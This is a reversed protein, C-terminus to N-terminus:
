AGTVGVIAGAYLDFTWDPPTGIVTVVDIRCPVNQLGRFQVYAAAGRVLRRRKNWDLSEQPTGFRVHRRSRIEVVCLVSGCWAVRDLEVGGYRENRGVIRYGQNRLFREAAEEAQRGRETRHRSTSGRGM